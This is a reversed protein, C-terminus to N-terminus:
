KSGLAVESESGELPCSREKTETEVLEYTRCSSKRRRSSREEEGDGVGTVASSFKTADYASAGGESEMGAAGAASGEIAERAEAPDIRQPNLRKIFRGAAFASRESKVGGDEGGGVDRHTVEGGVIPTSGKTGSAKASEGEERPSAEDKTRVTSASASGDAVRSNGLAM